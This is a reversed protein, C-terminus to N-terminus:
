KLHSIQKTDMDLLIAEAEGLDMDLLVDLNEVCCADAILYVLANLFVAHGFVAFADGETISSVAPGGAKAALENCVSSAYAVFADKGQDADFFKRLPGYGMSDFLDECIVSMGAPHLSEVMRLFVDGGTPSITLLAATDSARRAPSTLNAKVNLTELIHRNTDCQTKGKPTLTRTQDRFKWDHPEDSRSKGVIGNANAHRIFVLKRIGQDSCVTLFKEAM